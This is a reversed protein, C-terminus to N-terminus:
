RVGPPKQKPRLLRKVLKRGDSSAGFRFLVASVLVSTAAAAIALGWQQLPVLRPLSALVAQLAGLSAAVGLTTLTFMMAMCWTVTSLPMARFCWRYLLGAAFPPLLPSFLLLRAPHRRGDFDAFDVAAIASIALAMLLAHCMIIGVQIAARIAPSTRESAPNM